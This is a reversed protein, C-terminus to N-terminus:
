ILPTKSSEGAIERVLRPVLYGPLRERMGAALELARPTDVAFGASGAVPDLMHLYYPLAGADFGTEMLACLADLSDNVGGLLVAQNLVQAGVAALRGIAAAVDADFERAHNAHVVVLTRWPLGALWETLGRDVRDPLTVPMRTHIRLRRLHGIESLAATMRELRANSLMLPDGGSLIVEEIERAGALYDTAARLRTADLQDARYDFERRFCYRCHIPCAGTTMLLARGHYKHLVGATARSDRDGVPDAVFGAQPEAESSLPLVQRLLPDHPDGRRMRRAFSQTVLFGFDPQGALDFADPDLDLAVLLARPDRWAARLQEQWGATIMAPRTANGTMASAHGPYSLTM